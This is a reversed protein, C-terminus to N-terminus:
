VLASVNPLKALVDKFGLTLSVKTKLPNDSRESLFNIINKFISALEKDEFSGGINMMEKFEAQKQFWEENTLELRKNFIEEEYFKDAKEFIISALKRYYAPDSPGTYVVVKDTVDNGDLDLVIFKEM